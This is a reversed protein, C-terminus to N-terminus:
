YLNRFTEAAGTSMVTFESDLKLMARHAVDLHISPFKTDRTFFSVSPVGYLPPVYSLGGYTGFFAQSRAIVQSQVLLNDGPTILHGVRVVEPRDLIEFEGHDDASFGPDLVVVKSRESLRAVLDSVFRQVEGTQPFTPRDYFRVAVFEEPLVESLASGIPPASLPAYVCHKDWLDLTRLGIGRWVPRFLEYMMSPHLVQIGDVGLRAKARDILDQEFESIADQKQSGGSRQWRAYNEAQLQEISALDHIEIANEVLGDYWCAAGGRTLVTMRSPEVGFERAFWRVFPVWYLVEFGVESLWPGVLIQARSNALETLAERMDAQLRWTEGSGQLATKNEKAERRLDKLVGIQADDRRDVSTKLSALSRELSANGRALSRVEKKLDAVERRDTELQRDLKRLSTGIETLQGSGKVLLRVAGRLARIM